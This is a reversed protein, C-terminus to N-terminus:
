LCTEGYECWWYFLILAVFPKACSQPLELANAISNGSDQALGAICLATGNYIKKSNRDIAVGYSM